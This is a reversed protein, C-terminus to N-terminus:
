KIDHAVCLKDHDVTTNEVAVVGIELSIYTMDRRMQMMDIYNDERHNM